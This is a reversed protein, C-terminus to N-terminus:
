RASGRGGVWKRKLAELEGSEGLDQLLRNLPELLDSGQRVAYGFPTGDALTFAAELGEAQDLVRDVSGGSVLTFDAGGDLVAEFAETYFEVIIPEGDGLGLTELLGAKASGSIAAAKRGELDGAQRLGSGRRALVVESEFFYPDSFDLKQRRAPTNSFYSAIIDGGGGLLASILEGFGPKETPRIELDVGLRSAFAAMLDVDLGSFDDVGGVEKMPGRELNVSVFDSDLQPFCLMVLKGRAKVRDLHSDLEQAPVRLPALSALVIMAAWRQQRALTAM